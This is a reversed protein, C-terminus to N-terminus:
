SVAKVLFSLLGQSEQIDSFCKNRQQPASSFNQLVMQLEPNQKCIYICIVAYLLKWNVCIDDQVTWIIKVYIFAEVITQVISKHVYHSEPPQGTCPWSYSEIFRIPWKWSLMNWPETVHMHIFTAWRFSTACSGSTETPWLRKQHGEKM